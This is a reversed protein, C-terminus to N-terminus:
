RPLWFTTNELLDGINRALNCKILDSEVGFVKPNIEVQNLVTYVLNGSGIVPDLVSKISKVDMLKRVLYGIFIGITDPTILANSSFTHKYGKLMGLQVSKRIEEREFQIDTVSAKLLALTSMDDEKYTDETSEDLLYNFAENMGEIYPKKYQEYLLEAVENFYDYFAEINQKNIM